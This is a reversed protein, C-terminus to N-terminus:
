SLRTTVYLPRGLHAMWRLSTIKELPPLDDWEEDGTKADLDVLALKDFATETIPPMVRFMNEQMRRSPDAHALLYFQYMRGATSLFFFFGWVPYLKHLCRRLETFATWVGSEDLYNLVHAEDFSVVFSPWRDSEKDPEGPLSRIYSELAHAEAELTM